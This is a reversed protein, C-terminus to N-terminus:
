RIIITQVVGGQDHDRFFDTVRVRTILFRRREGTPFDLSVADLRSGVGYGFKTLSEAHTTTM